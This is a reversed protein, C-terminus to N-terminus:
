NKLITKQEIYVYFNQDNTTIIDSPLSSWTNLLPDYQYTASKDVEFRDIKFQFENLRKQWTLHNLQMNGSANSLSLSVASDFTTTIRFKTSDIISHIYYTTGSIVGGFATGSFNISMNVYFDATSTCTFSNNSASASSVSINTITSPTLNRKIISSYGPKTYCIIFAPVYGLIEDKLQKSTMWPPLVNSDNISLLEVTLQDRMNILSNPYLIQSSSNPIEKPWTITKSISVGDANVLNDQVESYVVEYLISNDVDRAIATKLEGLIIDRWYFNENIATLYEQVTSSPVGYLHNYTLSSAKSFYPDGVRYLAENPIVNVDNLLLALNARDVENLYSKMYVTEYPHTFRQITTLKFERTSIIFPNSVSFATITFSYVREQNKSQLSSLSEFALKGTIQGNSNFTLEPPLSGVISYTLDFGGLSEAKVYKTSIDGNYIIGLNSDTIWNVKLNIDGVVTISYSITPSTVAPNSTKYARVTFNYIQKTAGLVPLTGYLWGTVNNFSLSGIPTGVWAFVYRVDSTDFDYGIFKFIFDDEEDFEGLSATNFYYFRYIDNRPINPVLPRNNLITPARGVFGPLLEQNNIRIEFPSISTGSEGTIRIVFNFIRDTPEETIRDIPPEAYGWIRGSESLFIGTPLKGSVLLFSIDSNNDPNLYTLQISIWTSDSYIGLNSATTIIPITAGSVTLYFTRDKVGILAVGSYEKLRITFEYTVDVSVESPTGTLLGSTSISFPTNVDVSVPFSGNLLVYELTNGVSSATGSFQFTIQINETYNGILGEPTNWTPQSM